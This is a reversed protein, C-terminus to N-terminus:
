SDEEAAGYGHERLVDLTMRAGAVLGAHHTISLASERVEALAAEAKEARVVAADHLRVIIEIAVRGDRTANANAIRWAERAEDIEPRNLESM